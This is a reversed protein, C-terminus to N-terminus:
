QRLHRVLRSIWFATDTVNLFPRGAVCPVHGTQPVFILRM